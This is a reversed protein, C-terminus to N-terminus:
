AARDRHAAARAPPFERLLSPLLPMVRRVMQTSASLLLERGPGWDFGFDDRVRRPLLGVTVLTLAESVPLLAPRVLLPASPNLTARAVNRAAETVRLEQDVMREWYARFDEYTAPYHGEPVGCAHAFLKQEEYYRSVDPVSLPRIYRTYVLLSTDVLTAWVWTLLDPDRADYPAGDEDSVGRVKVHSGQLRRSARDSVHPDGFVIRTTVELTRYLRGWPDERYNSHQEVGAAVLPHAVQLLLARGGGVLLVMERNIRWTVSEPGYLGRARM